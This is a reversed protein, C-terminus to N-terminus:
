YEVAALDRQGGYTCCVRGGKGNDVGPMIAAAFRTLAGRLPPDASRDTWGDTRRAIPPRIERRPLPAPPPTIRDATM